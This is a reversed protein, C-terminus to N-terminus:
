AASWVSEAGRPPTPKPSTMGQQAAPTPRPPTDSKRYEIKDVRVEGDILQYVFTVIVSWQIDRLAFSPTADSESEIDL